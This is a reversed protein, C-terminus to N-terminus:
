QTDGYLLRNMECIMEFCRPSVEKVKDKTAQESLAKWFANSWLPRPGRRKYPQPSKYKSTKTTPFPM